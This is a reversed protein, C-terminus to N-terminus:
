AKSTHGVILTYVGGCEWAGHQGPFSDTTPIEPVCEYKHAYEYATVCKYTYVCAGVCTGACVCVCVHVCVSECACVGMCVGMTSSMTFPVKTLPGYASMVM